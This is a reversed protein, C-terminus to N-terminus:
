NQSNIVTTRVCRKLSNLKKEVLILQCEDSIFCGGTCSNFSLGAKCPRINLTLVVADVSLEKWNVVEATVATCGVTEATLNTIKATDSDVAESHIDNDTCQLLWLVILHIMLLYKCVSNQVLVLPIDHFVIYCCALVIRVQRQATFQICGVEVNKGGIFTFFQLKYM